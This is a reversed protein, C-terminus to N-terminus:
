EMQPFGLFRVLVTTAQGARIRVTLRAGGRADAQRLPTLVYTGTTLRVSFHANANSKVVVPTGAYTSRSVSFRALPYPRWPNCPPDTTPGPCGFSIQTAGRLVGTAQVASRSTASTFGAIAVLGAIAIMKM